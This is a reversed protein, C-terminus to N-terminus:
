EQPQGEAAELEEGALDDALEPHHDKRQRENVPDPLALDGAWDGRGLSADNAPRFDRSAHPGGARRLRADTARPSGDINLDMRATDSPPGSAVMDNLSAAPTAPSNSPVTSASWRGTPGAPPMAPPRA